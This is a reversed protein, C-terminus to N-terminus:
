FFVKVIKEQAMIVTQAVLAAYRADGRWALPRWWSKIPDAEDNALPTSASVIPYRERLTKIFDVTRDIITNSDADGKKHVSVFDM